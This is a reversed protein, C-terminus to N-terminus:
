KQGICSRVGRNFPIMYAHMEPTAGELWREPKFKEPEPFVQRDRLFYMMACSVFTQLGQGDTVTSSLIKGDLLRVGEAIHHGNYDWGGEPVVRPQRGAVPFAIRLAEKICADLLPVRELDAVNPRPNNKPSEARLTAQLQKWMGPDSALHYLAATM